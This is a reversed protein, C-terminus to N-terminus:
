PMGAREESVTYFGRAGLDGPLSQNRFSTLVWDASRTTSSVRVEDIQGQFYRSDGRSTAGISLPLSQEPSPTGSPTTYTVVSLRQGNVYLAPATSPKTQDYTVVVHYWANLAIAGPAGWISTRRAAARHSCHPPTRESGAAKGAASSTTSM